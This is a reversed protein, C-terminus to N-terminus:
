GLIMYGLVGEGLKSSTSGGSPLKGVVIESVNFKLTNDYDINLIYTEIINSLLLDSDQSIKKHTIKETYLPKELELVRGDLESIAGNAVEIDAANKAIRAFVTGAKDAVDTAVGLAARVDGDFFPLESVTKKGDGIKIRQYSYTEDADYIIIEGILPKFGTAKKWNDEIDHKHQIRTFFEKTSVGAM